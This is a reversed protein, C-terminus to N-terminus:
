LLDGGDPGDFFGSETLHRVVSAATPLDVGAKLVAGVTRTSGFRLHAGLLDAAAVVHRCNGAIVALDGLLTDTVATAPPASTQGIEIGTRDRCERRIREIEEEAERLVSEVREKTEDLVTMVRQQAEAAMAEGSPESM